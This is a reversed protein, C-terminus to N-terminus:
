GFGPPPDTEVATPGGVWLAVLGAAIEAIRAEVLQGFRAAAIAFIDLAGVFDTRCQLAGLLLDIATRDRQDVDLGVVAGAGGRHRKGL